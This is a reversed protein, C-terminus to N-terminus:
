RVSSEGDKGDLARLSTHVTSLLAVPMMTQGLSEAIEAIQAIKRVEEIVARVREEAATAPLALAAEADEIDDYLRERDAIVKDPHTDYEDTPTHECHCDSEQVYESATETLHELAGRMQAVQATLANNDPPLSVTREGGLYATRARDLADIDRELDRDTSWDSVVLYAADLVQELMRAADSRSDHAVTKLETLLDTVEKQDCLENLADWARGVAVCVQAERAALADREATLREVEESDDGWLGRVYDESSMGGTLNPIAGLLKTVDRVPGNAEVDGADPANWVAGLSGRIGDIHAAIRETEEATLTVPAGFDHRHVIEAFVRELDQAQTFAYEPSRALDHLSKPADADPHARHSKAHFADYAARDCKPCGWFKMDRRPGEGVPGWGERRYELTGGCTPCMESM